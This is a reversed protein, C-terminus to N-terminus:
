DVTFRYGTTNAFRESPCLVTSPFAPQDPLDPFHQTEFAFGTHRSYVEGRPGRLTRDLHNGSYFQFGPQTTHVELIRGSRPERVHTALRPEGNGSPGLIFNHDYGFAAV